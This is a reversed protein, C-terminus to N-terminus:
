FSLPASTFNLEYAMYIDIQGTNVVSLVTSNGERWDLTCMKAWASNRMRDEYGLVGLGGSFYRSYPSAAGGVAPTQDPAGQTGRVPNLGDGTGTDTSPPTAKSALVSVNGNGDVNKLIKEFDLALPGGGFSEAYFVRNLFPVSAYTGVAVPGGTGGYSLELSMTHASVINIANFFDGINGIASPDTSGDPVNLFDLLFNINSGYKRNVSESLVANASVEIDNVRQAATPLDAM